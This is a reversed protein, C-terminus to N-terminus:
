RRPPLDGGRHGGGHARHDPRTIEPFAKKCFGFFTLYAGYGLLLFEFHHHWMRFYGELTKQYTDLLTTTRPLAAAPTCTARAARVGAARAEAPGARGRDAQLMKESGSRTCRKGTRTTTSRASRSSRPAASSRPRSRDRANGGIYVRGNIIRHDIGLTTPLCHVRTNAAGLACYAAEATVMDFARCPSPFTCPTTSGSASTTTKPRVPHLVSLGGAGAGHRAGGEALQAASIGPSSNRM